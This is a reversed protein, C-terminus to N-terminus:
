VHKRERKLTRICESLSKGTPILFPVKKKYSRYDAFCNPFTWVDQVIVYLLNCVCFIVGACIVSPEPVAIALCLYLGIFWLVGPHRCLAYVGDACVEPSGDKKVYTKGFPLAFFLTYILLGLFVAVFVMATWQGAGGAGGRGWNRVMLTGTAAALLLVGIFFASKMWKFKQKVSNIDYIVFLFFAFIGATICIGDTM